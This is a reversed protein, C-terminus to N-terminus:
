TIKALAKTLMPALIRAWKDQDSANQLLDNRIEIMLCPLGHAQAHRNLTYYFRDQGSYPENDGIVLDPDASLGERVVDAM